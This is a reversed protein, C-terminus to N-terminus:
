LLKVSNRINYKNRRYICHQNFIKDLISYENIIVKLKIESKNQNQNLDEDDLNEDYDSSNIIGVKFDLYNCWNDINNLTEPRTLYNDKGNLLINIQTDGSNLLYSVIGLDSLEKRNNTLHNDWNHTEIRSLPYTINLIIISFIIKPIISVWTEDDGRSDRYKLIKIFLFEQIRINNTRNFLFTLYNVIGLHSKKYSKSSDLVGENSNKIILFGKISSWKLRFNCNFDYNKLIKLNVVTRNYLLFKGLLEVTQRTIYNNSKFEFPHVREVYRMFMSDLIANKTNVLDKPSAYMDYNLIIEDIINEYKKTVNDILMHKEDVWVLINDFTIRIRASGLDRFNKETTQYNNNAPSDENIILFEGFDTYSNENVSFTHDDFLDAAQYCKDIKSPDTKAINFENIKEIRDYYDIKVEVDNVTNLIRGEGNQYFYENSVFKSTDIANLIHIGALLIETTYYNDNLLLKKAAVGVNYFQYKEHVSHFYIFPLNSLVTHRNLYDCHQKDAKWFIVLGYHGVSDFRDDYEPFKFTTKNEKVIKEIESISVPYFDFKNPYEEMVSDSCKMTSGFNDLEYAQMDTLKLVFENVIIQFIEDHVGNKHLNGNNSNIYDAYVVFKANHNMLRKNYGFQSRFFLKSNLNKNTEMFLHSGSQRYIGRRSYCYLNSSTSFTSCNRLRSTKYIWNSTFKGQHTPLISKYRTFDM